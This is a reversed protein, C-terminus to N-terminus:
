ARVKVGDFNVMVSGGGGVCVLVACCSVYIAATACVCVLSSSTM